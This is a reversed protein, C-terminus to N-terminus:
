IKLQWSFHQKLQYKQLYARYEESVFVWKKYSDEIQTYSIETTNSRNRVKDLQLLEFLPLHKALEGSKIIKLCTSLIQEPYDTLLVAAAYYKDDESNESMVVTVLDEYFLKPLRYFGMEHGWGFDCLNRPKWKSNDSLRIYLDVDIKVLGFDKPTQKEFHKSTMFFKAKM